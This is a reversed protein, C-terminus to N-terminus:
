EHDWSHTLAFPTGGGMGDDVHLVMGSIAVCREYIEAVRGWADDNLGQSTPTHIENSLVTALHLCRKSLEALEVRSQPNRTPGGHDLSERALRQTFQAVQNAKGAVVERRHKTELYAASAKKKRLAEKKQEVDASLASGGAKVKAAVDSQIEETTQRRQKALQANKRACDHLQQSRHRSCLLMGCDKCWFSDVMSRCVLAGSTKHKAMCMEGCEGCKQKLFRKKFKEKTLMAEVQDRSLQKAEVTPSGPSSSAAAPQSAAEM